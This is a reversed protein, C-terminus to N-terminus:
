GRWKNIVVGDKFEIFATESKQTSDSGGFILFIAGGNETQETYIYKWVEDDDAKSKSTPSGLTALVWGTTTSGAKIQAFTDAAVRVGNDTTASHHWVLCGSLLSIAATATLKMVFSKLSIRM